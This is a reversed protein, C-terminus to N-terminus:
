PGQHMSYDLFPFYQCQMFNGSLRLQYVICPVAAFKLQLYQHTSAVAYCIGIM